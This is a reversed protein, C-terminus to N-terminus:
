HTFVMNQYIDTKMSNNRNVTTCESVCKNMRRIQIGGNKRIKLM